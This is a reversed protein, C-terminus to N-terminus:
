AEDEMEQEITERLQKVLAVLVPEPLNRVYRVPRGSLKGQVQILAGGFIAHTLSHWFNIIRNM